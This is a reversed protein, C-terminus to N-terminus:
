LIADLRGLCFGVMIGVLLLFPGPDMRGRFVLFGLGVTVLLLVGLVLATLASQFAVTGARRISDSADPRPVAGSPERNSGTNASRSEQEPEDNEETAGSM